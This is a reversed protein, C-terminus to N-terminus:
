PMPGLEGLLLEDINAYDAEVWQPDVGAAVMARTCAEWMPVAETPLDSFMLLASARECREWVSQEPAEKGVVLDVARRVLPCFQRGLATETAFHVLKETYPYPKGEVLLFLRLLENAATLIASTAAVLDEDRRHQHPYIDVAAYGMLLWHYKIKRVLVERPYGQFGEVIRAFQERPDAIIRAHTWVWLWVDHYDRCHQEVEDLSTLSFQPRGMERGYYRDWDDDQLVVYFAREAKTIGAEFSARLVSDYVERPCVVDIDVDSGPLATGTARSGTLLITFQERHRDTGPLTYIQEDIYRQLAQPDVGTGELADAV